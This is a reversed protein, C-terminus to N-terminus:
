RAAEEILKTIRETADPVDWEQLSRRATERASESSLWGDIATAIRKPSTENELEIVAAGMEAFETANHYQHNSAASPLPVLVSPIGFMALEAMTGGSRALAVAASSYATKLQAADLFPEVSYQQVGLDRVVASVAEFHSPGSSHLWTSPTLFEYAAKPAIENLFKSGQSGGVVLVLNQEKPSERQAAADRLEKRIPMGTRIVTTGGFHGASAKFTTSVAHAGRAFM